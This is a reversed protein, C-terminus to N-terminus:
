NNVMSYKKIKMIPIPQDPHNSLVVYGKQFNCKTMMGELPANDEFDGEFKVSRMLLSLLENESFKYLTRDEAIGSKPNIFQLVGQENVLYIDLVLPLEFETNQEEIHITFNANDISKVYGSLEAVGGQLLSITFVAKKGILWDLVMPEYAGSMKNRHEFTIPPVYDWKHKSDRVYVGSIDEIVFHKAHGKLQFLAENVETLLGSIEYVGEFDGKFKVERNVLYQLVDPSYYGLGEGIEFASYGLDGGQLLPVLFQEDGNNTIVFFDLIDIVPIMNGKQEKLVLFGGNEPLVKELTGRIELELDDAAVVIRVQSKILAYFQSVAYQEEENFASLYNEPALEVEEGNEDKVKLTIVENFHIPKNEWNELTLLQKDVDVKIVIGQLIEEGEEALKVVTVFEGELSLFQEDSFVGVEDNDELREKAPDFLYTEGSEDFLYIETIDTIAIGKGGIFLIGSDGMVEELTGTVEGSAFDGVIVVEEDMIEKLDDLTYHM